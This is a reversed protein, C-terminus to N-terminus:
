LCWVLAACKQLHGSSSRKEDVEVNVDHMVFPLNQGSRRVALIGGLREGVFAMQRSKQGEGTWIGDFLCFM